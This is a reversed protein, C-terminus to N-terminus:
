LSIKIRLGGLTESRDFHISGNYLTIIEKAISLGLGHGEISEDLRVGRETLRELGQKSEGPGDDEVTIHIQESGSLSCYVRSDAWKCANDLLNGILELMDERDGFPPTVPDITLKIDLARRQHVQQLVEILTPLEQQADFRQGPTGTGALRARKLEREMLNQIRQTQALADSRLKPHQDLTPHDIQQILLSLPTKLAHALNGLANRSRELRQALLELLHNFEEVLPLVESPVQESLTIIEGQELQKIEARLQGLGRFSHDIIRKQMILLILLVLAALGAFTWQFRSLHRQLPTLDEAVTLTFNEGKKQYHHAWLLLKQGDPGTAYWQRNETASLPPIELQQDWLSRSFLTSGDAWRIAYYHGSFPQKYIPNIQKLEAREKPTTLDIAALLSEADHQLRSAILEEGLEKVAQSGAWWLLGMFCILSLTLGPQLRQQLSNM